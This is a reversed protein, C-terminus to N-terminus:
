RAELDESFGLSGDLVKKANIDDLAEDQANYKVITLYDRRDEVPIYQYNYWHDHRLAKIMRKFALWKVQNEQELARCMSQLLQSTPIDAIKALLDTARTYKEYFQLVVESALEHAYKHTTPHM